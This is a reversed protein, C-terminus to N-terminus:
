EEFLEVKAQKVHNVWAAGRGGARAILKLVNGPRLGRMWKDYPKKQDRVDWVVAHTKWSTDAHVNWVVLRPYHIPALSGDKAPEFLRAVFWTKSGRYAGQTEPLSSWGQDHSTITFIIRRPRPKHKPIEFALLETRSDTSTPNPISQTLIPKPQASLLEHLKSMWREDKLPVLATITPNDARWFLHPKAGLEIARQILDHDGLRLAVDLSSQGLGFSQNPDIDEDLLRQFIRRDELAVPIGTMNSPTFAKHKFLLLDRCKPRGADLVCTLPTSERDDKRGEDVDSGAGQQWLLDVVDERDHFCAKFLPTEMGDKDATTQHINAHYRILLKVMDLSASKVAEHIPAMGNIGAVNVCAGNDHELLFRAQDLRDLRAAWLLPTGGPGTRADLKDGDQVLLVLMDMSGFFVALHAAPLNSGLKVGVHEHLSDAEQEYDSGKWFQLSKQVSIQNAWHPCYMDSVRFPQKLFRLVETRLAGNIENSADAHHGWYRAAYQLLPYRKEIALVAEEPKKQQLRQTFEPFSLYEILTRAINIQSARGLTKSIHERVSEHRFRVIKSVREQVVLGESAAILDDIDLIESSHGAVADNRRQTRLADLIESPVLDRKCLCLWALM